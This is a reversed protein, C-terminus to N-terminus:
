FPMDQGLTCFNLLVQGPIRKTHSSKPSPM